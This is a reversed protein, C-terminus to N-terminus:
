DTLGERKVCKNSGACSARWVGVFHFFHKLVHCGHNFRELAKFGQDGGAAPEGAGDRGEPLAALVAAEPSARQDGPLLWVSPFRGQLARLTNGSCVPLGAHAACSSGARYAGVRRWLGALEAIGLLSTSSQLLWRVETGRREPPTKELRHVLVVQFVAIGVRIWRESLPAPPLIGALVKAM